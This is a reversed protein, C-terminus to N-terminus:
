LISASECESFEMMVIFLVTRASSMQAPIALTHLTCWPIFTPLCYSCNLRLVRVMPM